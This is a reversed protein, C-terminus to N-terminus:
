NTTSLPQLLYTVGNFCVKQAGGPINYCSPSRPTPQVPLFTIPSPIVPSGIGTTGAAPELAGIAPTAPRTVGAFDTTVAPIAVGAGIVVSGSAPAMNGYDYLHWTEDTLGPDACLASAEGPEPCTWSSKAHYTLNNSYLSGANTFVNVGTGNYIPNSYQGTGTTPYGDAANNIFGLFINNRFDIQTNASCNSNCELDIGTQNASYITNFDFVLPAGDNVTVKIGSDAARCFDSLKTNYGSPTGPIAQRLANCNTVIQNNIATGRAGGLKIQQGMNAYALANTITMTSGSGGIHLADLGDQTNYSVTGQNFVVNWGPSSTATATGFGDGYGGSNDDTCDQYPVSDVIPYEEACGNWSINYHQVLLSGTGTTGDGPDANWGSSANGILDVYSFVTGDGTPGEMGNVALGHIHIDTLTDNTSTNSWYIGTNAYDDIQGISTNCGNSQGSRGCSSFDTIDLCQVDVYSVGAMNLITYLGYGGHLQTKASAAHCSAYNEGLIRTHQGATGSLPTPPSSGYPNGSLGWREGTTSDWANSNNNWGIRYSVGTGISGRIIYTDGGQGVWGWSPFASGDVAYSGDQWLFRVDNFACHQNAGSNPVYAADGLGDCQGSTMNSSYRTGGDPRVYWTSAFAPLSCALALAALSKKM